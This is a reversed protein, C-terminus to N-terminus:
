SSSESLVEIIKEQSIDFMRLRHYLTKGNTHGIKLTQALRSRRKKSDKSGTLGMNYLFAHTVNSKSSQKIIRMDKLANKITKTSAHEIGIKKRNKSYANEQDIFAHFVHTLSRGLIRRIREGAHDPDLFLVIDHTEDLAKLVEIHDPDIASGNTIFVQIDPYVQKLRSADNKGEVVFIKPRM